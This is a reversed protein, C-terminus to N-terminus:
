YVRSRPTTSKSEPLNGSYVKVVGSPDVTVNYYNERPFIKTTGEEFDQFQFTLYLDTTDRLLFKKVNSEDGGNFVIGEKTVFKICNGLILRDDFPQATSFSIKDLWYNVKSYLDKQCTGQFAEVSIFGFATLSIILIVALFVISAFFLDIGTGKM